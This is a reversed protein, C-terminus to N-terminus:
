HITKAKAHAGKYLEKLPQVIEPQCSVTYYEVVKYDGTQKLVCLYWFSWIKRFEQFMKTGELSGTGLPSYFKAFLRVIETPCM